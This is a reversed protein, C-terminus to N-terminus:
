DHGLSAPEALSPSAAKKKIQKKADAIYWALNHMYPEGALQPFRHRMQEGLEVIAQWNEARNLLVIQNGRAFVEMAPSVGDTQAVQDYLRIAQVLQAPMDALVRAKWLTIIMEGVPRDVSKTDAATKGRREQALLDDLLTLAAEHKDDLM